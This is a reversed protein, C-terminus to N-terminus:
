NGLMLDSVGWLHGVRTPLNNTETLKSYSNRNLDDNLKWISERTQDLFLVLCLTNLLYIAKTHPIFEYSEWKRKKSLARLCAPKSHIQNGRCGRPYRSVKITLVRRGGIPSRPRSSAAVNCHSKLPYSLLRRGGSNAGIFPSYDNRQWM